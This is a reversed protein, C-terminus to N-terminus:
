NQIELNNGKRRTKGTFKRQASGRYQKSLFVCFGLQVVSTNNRPTITVSLFNLYHLLRFRQHVGPSNSPEQSHKHTHCTKRRVNQLDGCWHPFDDIIMRCRNPRWYLLSWKCSVVPMPVNCPRIDGTTRLQPTQPYRSRGQPQKGGPDISLLALHWRRKKM